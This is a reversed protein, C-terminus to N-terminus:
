SLSIKAYMIKCIFKFERSCATDNWKDGKQKWLMMCDEDGLSNNPEGELWNTYEFPTGDTWVWKKEEGLDSGGLYAIEEDSVLGLDAVFKHEEPSQISALHGGLGMCHAEAQSWTKKEDFLKYCNYGMSKWGVPCFAACESVFCRPTVRQM